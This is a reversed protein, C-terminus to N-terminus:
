GAGSDLDEDVGATPVRAIEVGTAALVFVGDGQEVDIRIEEDGPFQGLRDVLSCVAGYLAPGYKLLGKEYGAQRRQYIYLLERAKM